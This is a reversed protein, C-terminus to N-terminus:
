SLLCYLQDPPGV